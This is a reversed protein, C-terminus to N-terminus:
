RQPVSCSEVQQEGRGCGLQEITCSPVETDQPLCAQDGCACSATSADACCHKGGRCETDRGQDDKDTLQCQCGGAIPLCIIARCDCRLAPGPWGTPACCRLTPHAVSTCGNGNPAATIQCSCANVSTVYAPKCETLNSPASGMCAARCEKAVCTSLDRHVGDSDSASGLRDCSPGQQTSCTELDKIIDGCADDFCCADVAATCKEAVCAGCSTSKGAFGCHAGGVSAMPLVLVCGPAGVAVLAAVALFFALVAHAPRLSAPSRPRPIPV